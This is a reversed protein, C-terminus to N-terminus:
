RVRRHDAIAEAFIQLDRRLTEAEIPTLLQQGFRVGNFAVAIRRPLDTIGRTQLHTAFVEEARSANEIASCSSLIPMGGRECQDCFAAYFRVISQRVRNQRSFHQIVLRLTNRLRSYVRFRIASLTMVLLLTIGSLGKLTLWHEPPRILDRLLERLVPTVGQNRVSDLLSRTSTLFPAFFEKQREASMSNVNGAWLDTLAAQFTSLISRSAIAQATETREASPTPDLTKWEGGVWAEVWAHAHRQRIEFRETLPNLESGCYGTVLRAPIGSAQLLLVCASAFYECHGSKSQLLFVEIPDYDLSIAPQDLTYRFGNEPSLTSMVRRVREGESVLTGDVVSLRRAVKHLRPLRSALDDTIYASQAKRTLRNLTMTQTVHHMRPDIMWYEFTLGPYRKKSPCEVVYSRANKQSVSPTDASWSLSNNWSRRVISEGSVSVVRSLPFPAPVANGFPPELTVDLIFDAPPMGSGSYNTPPVERAVRGPLWRGDQYHAFVNGRFRIEDMEMATEFASVDVIDQTWRDRIQFSLARENSILIRGFEGLRVADSLGTRRGGIPVDDGLQDALLTGGNVWVRPFAAFVVMALAVSVLWSGLVLGRFKWGIWVEQPDRDLGNRVDIESVIVPGRTRRLRRRRRTELDLGLFSFLFDQTLSFRPAQTGGSGPLSGRSELQTQFQREARFLSFVSLTWIMLLTMLFVAVGYGLGTALVGATTVQLVSLAILWWFQRYSKDMFLIIWTLYILLDTGALLRQLNTGSFQMGALILAIVGLMNTSLVSFSFSKRYDALYLGAAAVLPTLAPPFFRGQSIAMVLSAASTMLFVSGLFTTQLQQDHHNIANDSM